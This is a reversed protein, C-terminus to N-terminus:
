SFARDITGMLLNLAVISGSCRSDLCSCFFSEVVTMQLSKDWGSVDYDVVPERIKSLELGLDAGLMWYYKSDLTHRHLAFVDDSSFLRGDKEFSSYVTEIISYTWDPMQITRHRGKRLKKLLVPQWKGYVHVVVPYGPRKLGVWTSWIAFAFEEVCRSDICIPVGALYDEIISVIVSKYDGVDDVNIGMHRCWGGSSSKTSTLLIFPFLVMLISKANDPIIQSFVYDPDVRKYSDVAIDSLLLAMESKVRKAWNDVKVFDIWNPDVVTM